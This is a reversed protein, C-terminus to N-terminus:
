IFLLQLSGILIGILAGMEPIGKLSPRLAQKWIKDDMEKLKGGLLSAIEGNPIIKAVLKCRLAPVILLFEEKAINKMQEVMSGHMMMGFMPFKVRIAQLSTEMCEEFQQELVQDVGQDKLLEQIFQENLIKEEHLLLIHHIIKNKRFYMIWFTLHVVTWGILAGLLPPLFLHM